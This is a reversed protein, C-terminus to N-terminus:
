VNGYNPRLISGAVQKCYILHALHVRREAFAAECYCLYFHWLRIFADGYGMETVRDLQDMFAERWRRLTHVYHPTLDETHLMRMDTQPHCVSQTRLRLYAAVQFFMGFTFDVHRIHYDYHQEGITIAQLLLAGQDNLLSSCKAFYDDYYQHGVAEIMEISVLKDFSGKL